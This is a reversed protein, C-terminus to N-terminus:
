APMRIMGPRGSATATLTGADVTPALRIPAAKQQGGTGASSAGAVTMMGEPQNLFRVGGRSTVGILRSMDSQELKEIATGIEVPDGVFVDRHDVGAAEGTSVREARVSGAPSRWRQRDGIDGDGM